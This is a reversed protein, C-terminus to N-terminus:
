LGIQLSRAANFKSPCASALHDIKCHSPFFTHKIFSPILNSRIVPAKQNISRAKSVITLSCRSPQNYRISILYWLASHSLALDLCRTSLNSLVEGDGDRKPRSDRAIYSYDVRLTFLLKNVSLTNSIYCRRPWYCTGLAIADIFSLLLM